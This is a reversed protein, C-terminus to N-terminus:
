EVSTWPDVPFDGGGPGPNGEVPDGPILGVGNTSSVGAPAAADAVFAQLTLAPMADPTDVKVSWTGRVDPAEGIVFPLTLPLLQSINLTCGLLPSAETGLGFLLVGPAGPLADGVVIRFEFGPTPSGSVGLSPAFGDSGPCRAGFCVWGGATQAAAPVVISACVAVVRVFHKM